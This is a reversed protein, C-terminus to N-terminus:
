GCGPGALLRWSRNEGAVRYGSPVVDVPLSEDAPDLISLSAVEPRPAIFLGNASPAVQEASVIETVRRGTWYALSPVPRHNPVFVPGPCRDLLAEARDASVLDHLDAQVRDRAAIDDRLDGLRQAQPWSFLVLLALAALGAARWRERVPHEVPLSRWGFVAVAALVSLMAAALFLYRTLLSLGAISFAVYAIGNLVAVALPVITRRRMWVLGATTGAVACLLEPLRLIEGLRRPLLEPVREIGTPRGLEAALDSTGHLSWLLDGTVALDSLLWLVPAAVALLALGLRARLDRRPARVGALGYGISRLWAPLRDATRDASLPLVLWLWYLAAFLWAEPRLLGALGLLVLVAAGRRPRRAELVAAWAIFAVTPLDVYGRIGFNLPPVRTVFILGALVGVAVGYSESGLRFLAVVLAGFGLLVLAIFVTEASTEGLPAVVAGVATALPHPTPAVPADYQPTRGEVIDEGWVLAYMSDYNLFAHGFFAFIAAAVCVSAVVDVLARRRATM